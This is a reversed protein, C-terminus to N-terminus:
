RLTEKGGLAPQAAVALCPRVSPGQTLFSWFFPIFYPSPSLTGPRDERTVAIQRDARGTRDPAVTGSGGFPRREGPAPQASGTM